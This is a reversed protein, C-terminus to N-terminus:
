MPSSAPGTRSDTTPPPSLPWTASTPPTQPGSLPATPFPTRNRSLRPGNDPTRRWWPSTAASGAQDVCWAAFSGTSETGDTEVVSDYLSSGDEATQYGEQSLAVAAACDAPTGEEDVQDLAESAAESWVADGDAASETEGGTEDEDDPRSATLAESVSESLERDVGPSAEATEQDLTIAPLILAYTTVFAVISAAALTTRSLVRRNSWLRLFADSKWLFNKPVM